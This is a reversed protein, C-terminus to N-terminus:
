GGSSEFKGRMMMHIERHCNACVLICKDLEPKIREFSYSKGGSLSLEKEEPNLHHFELAEVCYDYGCRCCKGGKYAVCKHKFYHMRDLTQRNTCEKCYPSLNSNKRRRYFAEAPLQQKCRPCVKGGVISKERFLTLDVTNHQGYPSCELCFKRNQLNKQQGNVFMRNPFRVGCKKCEPM